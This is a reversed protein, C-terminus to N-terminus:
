MQTLTRNEFYVRDPNKKKEVKTSTFLFTQKECQSLLDMLGNKREIM